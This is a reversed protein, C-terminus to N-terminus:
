YAKDMLRWIAPLVIAALGLKVLDGILFPTLGWALIPQNWGYLIALWILGPVYIIVNGIFMAAAMKFFSRDWGQRAAWGIFAVALVYGVLYGGTSGTMYSIGFKEASSGAFVDFGLAGVLMYGIITVLGLRPGYVAGISLVAFTGMTMPVPIMPIKIKSSLVLLGIGVLVL